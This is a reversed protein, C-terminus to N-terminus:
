AKRFRYTNALWLPTFHWCIQLNKHIRHKDDSLKIDNYRWKDLLCKFVLIEQLHESKQLTIEKKKKINM